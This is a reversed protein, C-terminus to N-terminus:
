VFFHKYVITILRSLHILTFIAPCFHLFSLSDNVLCLSQAYYMFMLWCKLWSFTCSPILSMQTYEASDSPELLMSFCHKFTHTFDSAKIWEFHQRWKMDRQKVYVYSQNNISQQYIFLVSHFDTCICENFYLKINKKM